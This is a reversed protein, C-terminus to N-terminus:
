NLRYRRGNGVYDELLVDKLVVPGAADAPLTLTARYSQSSDNLRLYDTYLGDGVAVTVAAAQRLGSRDRARVEITLRGGRDIRRPEARGDLLEPPEQDLSVIWREIGTNGVRDTALMEIRNEGAALEVQEKFRGELELVPRGNVLLVAGPEVRGQLPLWQVNTVAPPQEDLTIRPAERDITARFTEDTTVGNPTTVTLTLAEEAQDLPVALRFRGAPDSFTSARSPGSASRVGIRADAETTGSLVLPSGGTVFHRPGIRPLDPDFAVAATGAPTFIFSRTRGTRNGAPDTAEIRVENSGEAPQFALEFAGDSGIALAQGRFALLADPEATGRVMVPAEQLVSGEAPENIALYPPTTDIRLNFRHAASREGPLGFKDLAAVRWYYSGVELGAMALRPEALGWRSDVLQQFVQDRGVELWYGTSGPVATWALEADANFVTADDRPAVIEPAPMVAVAEGPAQGAPVVTGENRGLTVSSGRAAVELTADDYNTFKSGQRDREVWFNTSNIQTQVDPIELEFTKRRSKGSLLAYFDGEILNVKAEQARELPDARMRIIVAESNPNLRLRSEDRFTIQATSRSLTRVREEEVLTSRLPRDAWVLDRPRRGEVEGQRDSLLAEVAADRAKLALQLAQDAAKEARGALDASAAWDGAQRRSLAQEHFAVAQEIEGAAFVKAGAETASRIHDLAAALARNARSVQTVPIRLEVGPRADAVSALGSARLIETWLNPDGLHLRALERLNQGEALRVKLFADESCLAPQSAASLLLALIIRAAGLTRVGRRGDLRDCDEM